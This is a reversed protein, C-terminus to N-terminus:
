NKMIFDNRNLLTLPKTNGKWVEWGMVGFVVMYELGVLWLNEVYADTQYAAYSLLALGSWYIPFQYRLMVAFFVLTSIYWPHVITSAFLYCAFAWFMLQIMPTQKYKPHFTMWFISIVVALSLSRGAYAIINYGTVEYGIWRVIYYLSANFEFSKFYLNISNSLHEIMELSLFPTFCLLTLGGVIAYYRISKIWGLRPLLLPLLMLPLLKSNVSLAFFVASLDLKGKLYHYIAMCLFAIMMAEFHLNGVLEVIILPNLAYIMSKREDIGVHKCIKILYVITLGEGFLLVLRMLVVSVLFDNGSYGLAGLAFTLQNVPPYITFYNPSNLHDFLAKTIGSVEPAGEQMYYSPLEFFPNIGNLSLLGDWIFRFYDDSLAPISFLFILRSFIAVAILWKMSLKLQLVIAYGMFGLGFFLILEGFASRDTFFALKGFCAMLLAMALMMWITRHKQFLERM